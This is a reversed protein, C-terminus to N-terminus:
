GGRPARGLSSLLGGVQDSLNGLRTSGQYPRKRPQDLVRIPRSDINDLWTYRDRSSMMYDIDEEDIWPFFPILIQLAVLATRGKGYERVWNSDYGHRHLYHTGPTAALSSGTAVQRLGFGWTDLTPVEPYGRARRWSAKTYMYNGSAGPVRSTSLYDAFSFAAEKFLWTNTVTGVEGQFFRIEQPCTVDLNAERLHSRM